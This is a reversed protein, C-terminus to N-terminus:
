NYLFPQCRSLAASWMWTRTPTRGNGFGMIRALCAACWPKIPHPIFGDCSEGMAWQVTSAVLVHFRDQIAICILILVHAWIKGDDDCWDWDPM